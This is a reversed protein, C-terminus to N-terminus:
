RERAGIANAELLVDLAEGFVRSQESNLAGFIEQNRREILTISRRYKAAGRRTLKLAVSRGDEKSHMKIVLGRDILMQASRSAQSKDLNAFHALEKVSMRGDGDAFSGIAALCRGEGLTLGLEEEYAHQSAIDSLKHLRHLRYTFSRDLRM